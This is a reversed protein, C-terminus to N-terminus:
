QHRIDNGAGEDIATEDPKLFIANRKSFRNLWVHSTVSRGESGAFMRGDVHGDSYEDPIKIELESLDNDKVLNDNSGLDFGVRDEDGWIHFGYYAKGSVKNGVVETRDNKRIVM